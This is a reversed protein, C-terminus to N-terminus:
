MHREVAMRFVGEHTTKGKEGMLGHCMKIFISFLYLVLFPKFLLAAKSPNMRM